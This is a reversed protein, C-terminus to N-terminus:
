EFTPVKKYFVVSIKKNEKRVGVINHDKRLLEINILPGNNINFSLNSLDKFHFKLEKALGSSPETNIKDDFVNTSNSYVVLVDNHFESEFIMYLTDPSLKQRYKDDKINEEGQYRYLVEYDYLLDREVKKNSQMNCAFVFIFVLLTFYKM